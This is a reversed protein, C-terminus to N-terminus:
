YPKNLHQFNLNSKNKLQMVDWRMQVFMEVKCKLKNYFFFNIGDGPQNTTEQDLCSTPVTVSTQKKRRSNTIPKAVNLRLGGGGERYIGGGM